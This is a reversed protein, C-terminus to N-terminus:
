HQILITHEVTQLVAGREDRAVAKLQHLGSAYRTPNLAVTYGDHGQADRGVPQGDLTFEVLCAGPVDVELELEGGAVESSPAPAPEPAQNSIPRGDKGILKIEMQNANPRNLLKLSYAEGARPTGMVPFVLNYVVQQGGAPKAGAKPTPLNVVRPAAPRLPAIVPEPTHLVAKPWNPRAAQVVPAETVGAAMATLPTELPEPAHFVSAAKAVSQGGAGVLALALLLSLPILIPRM